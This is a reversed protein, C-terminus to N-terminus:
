GGIAVRVDDASQEEVVFMCIWFVFVSKRLRHKRSHIPWIQLLRLQWQSSLPVGFAM